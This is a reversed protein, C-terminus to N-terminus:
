SKGFSVPKVPIMLTVVTSIASIIACMWFASSYSGTLDVSLGGAYTGLAGGVQHLVYIL